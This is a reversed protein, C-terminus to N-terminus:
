RTLKAFIENRTAKPLASTIARRRGILQDAVTVRQIWGAFHVQDELKPLPISISLFDRPHLRERRAGIGTSMSRVSEMFDPTRFVAALYERHAIAEDIEFTPFESSVFHGAHEPAVIAFSGEFAKLKSYIVQGATLRTLSTYKTDSGSIPAQRFTGRGRNLVGAVNYRNDAVVQVTTTNTTLLSSLPAEGTCRGIVHSTLSARLADTPLRVPDTHGLVDVRSLRHVVRQQTRIDPLPIRIQEFAKIGLTRNRTVTGPSAARIQIMGHDSLLYHMVYTVDVAAESRPVYPLFRQSAIFGGHRNSSTAIAAEWAQINSLILANQPLEYYSLRSLDAGLTSPREIIGKGWSYVGIQRYERLPDIAVPRRVLELVDGARVWEVKM